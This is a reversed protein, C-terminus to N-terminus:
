RRRSLLDGARLRLANIREPEPLIHGSHRGGANPISVLARFEALLAAAAPDSKAREALLELYCFDEVGDRAAEMRITTVPETGGEKPPYILYGDGAPYRVWYTKGPTDSQRIYAHWGYKWPDYTLWTSGWFEYLDAGYKQAYHPLLREVACYPTDTCMQGDTTWWIRDGAAKRAKMEEVPFCGYHGVGWVDLSGNWEPCHRWTSSYIRIKPDVAHIMDCCAKMQEVVNKRSFHPEDSIYLTLRDAWGKAKVHDWYLKLAQQYAKVYAPRLKTWDAGEYPWTGEYPDEGLFKKPPMAWGFCYFAHPMYSSPFKYHDFYREALRDYATFDATVNGDGDKAFKVNEGLTDPCCKKEAMFAWLKERRAEQTDGLDRWRWNVRLDYVAAFRPRAPIEFDWVKVTFADTRVVKGDLTWTARGAYTGPRTGADARFNLWFAQTTNPALDATREAVVPDPWWGSWGDSQGGGRPHRLVWEPTTCSYYATPWDVPVYDVRGVEVPLPSEVALAVRGGTASRVALQLPETENRALAVAFPAGTEEVPTERFVKVVPDVQAVQLAAGADTSPAFEPDGTKAATYETLLVGDHAVTGSGNMTLQLSVKVTRDSAHLTGFVPTWPATGSVGRGASGMGGPLTSGKADILHAHVTAASALDDGSIFAGYFYDRGPTVSVTQRWGSWNPDVGAPIVTKAFRGGFRGGGEAVEFAIGNKAPSHSWGKEGDEFSANRVLNGAGALLAAFAAEDGVQVRKVLVQDSPIVSGLASKLEEDAPAAPAVKGTSRVYLYCTTVSKAPLSCTFLLRSGLSCARLERGGLTLRYAPNRTAHLAEPLAFSALVDPRDADTLNVLRVPVRYQWAAGGDWAADRGIERLALREEAGVAVRPDEASAGSREIRLDDFWARGTGRLVSGVTMKTCDAPVTVEMELEKWGFTGGGANFVKNLVDGKKEHGAHVYWGAYGKRVNEARLRVRLRVREGPCVPIGGQTYSFWTPEAGEDAEAQICRRGEPAGDSVVSMRHAADVASTNWGVLGKADTEEFGGNVFGGPRDEWFDALGWAAANGYYVEFDAREKAGCCVPIAFVGDQPLPGETVLRTAGKTWVGYELEVGKADVLRLEEVRADRFPLQSVPVSVTKGEWAADTPNEVTVGVRSTWFSGRGLWLDDRWPTAAQVGAILGVVALLAQTKM